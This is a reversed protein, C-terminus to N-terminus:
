NLTHATVESESPNEPTAGPKSTLSGLALDIAESLNAIDNKLALLFVVRKEPEITNFYQVLAEINERM